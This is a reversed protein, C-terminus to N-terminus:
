FEEAVFTSVDFFLIQNVSDTKTINVIIYPVMWLFRRCSKTKDTPALMSGVGEGPRKADAGRM